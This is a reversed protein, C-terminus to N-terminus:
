PDSRHGATTWSPWTNRGRSGVMVMLGHEHALDLLWRQPVTYLRVANIGAAAM